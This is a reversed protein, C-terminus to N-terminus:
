LIIYKKSKQYLYEPILDKAIAGRNFGSVNCKNKKRNWSYKRGFYTIRSARKEGVRIVKDRNSKDRESTSEFKKKHLM